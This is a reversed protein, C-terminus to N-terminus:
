GLIKDIQDCISKFKIKDYESDILDNELRDDEIVSLRKIRKLITEQKVKSTCSMPDKLNRILYTADRLRLNFQHKNVCSFSQYLVIYGDDHELMTFVSEYPRTMDDLYRRYKDRINDMEKYLSGTCAGVFFKDNIFKSKILYIKSKSYNM